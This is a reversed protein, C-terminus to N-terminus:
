KNKYEPLMELAQQETAGVTVLLATGVWISAAYLIRKVSDM